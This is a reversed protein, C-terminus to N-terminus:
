PLKKLTYVYKCTLLLLLILTPSFNRKHLRVSTFSVPRKAEKQFSPLVVEHGSPASVIQLPNHRGINICLSQSHDYVELPYLVIDM